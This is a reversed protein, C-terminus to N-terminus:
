TGSVICRVNYTGFAGDPAVGILEFGVGVTRSRETVRMGLIAVEDLKDTFFPQVIMTDTMGTHPITVSAITGNNGFDLAGDFTAMTGGGGTAGAVTDGIPLQQLAGGIM